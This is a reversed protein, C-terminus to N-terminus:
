EEAKTMTIRENAVSGEQELETPMVFNPLKGQLRAVCETVSQSVEEGLLPEEEPISAQRVLEQYRLHSHQFEKHVEVLTKVKECAEEFSDVRMLDDVNRILNLVKRHSKNRNKSCIDLFYKEGRESLGRTRAPLANGDLRTSPSVIRLVLM